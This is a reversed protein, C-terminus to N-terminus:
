FDHSKGPDTEIPQSKYKQNGAAAQLQVRCLVVQSRMVEYQM